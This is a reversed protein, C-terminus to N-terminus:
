QKILNANVGKVVQQSTVQNAKFVKLLPQDCNIFRGQKLNEAKAYNWVAKVAEQRSMEKKNVVAALEPSLQYKRTLSARTAPHITRPRKIKKKKQGSQSMEKEKRKEMYEEEIRIAAELYRGGVIEPRLVHPKIHRHLKKMDLLDTGFMSKLKDDCKAMGPHKEDKLDHETVYDILINIIESRTYVRDSVLQLLAPAPVVPRLFAPMRKLQVLMVPTKCVARRSVIPKTLVPAQLFASARSGLRLMHMM